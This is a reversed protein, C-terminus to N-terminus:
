APTTLTSVGAPDHMALVQPLQAAILEGPDVGADIAPIDPAAPEAHHDPGRRPERPGSGARGQGASGQDLARRRLAPGKRSLRTWDTEPPVVSIMFSIM